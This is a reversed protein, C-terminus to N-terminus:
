LSTEPKEVPVNEDDYPCDPNTCNDQNRYLRNGDNRMQNNRDTPRNPFNGNPQNQHLRDPSNIPTNNDSRNRGNNQENNQGFGQRFNGPRNSNDIRNRGNTQGNNQGFGQGSNGSRNGSNRGNRATVNITQGFTPQNAEDSAQARVPTAFFSHNRHNRGPKRGGHHNQVEVLHMAFTAIMIVTLVRHVKIWSITPFLKRLYYSLGLLIIVVCCVWGWLASHHSLFGHILSVIALAIGLPIHVKRLIRNISCVVSRWGSKEAPCNNPVNGTSGDKPLDISPNDGPVTTGTVTTAPKSQRGFLRLVYIMVLAITLPITAMKCIQNILDLTQIM